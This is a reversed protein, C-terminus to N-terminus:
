LQLFHTKLSTCNKTSGTCGLPTVVSAPWSCQLHVTTKQCQQSNRFLQIWFCYLWERAIKAPYASVACYPRGASARPLPKVIYICNLIVKYPFRITEWFTPLWTLVQVGRRRSEAFFNISQIPSSGMSKSRESAATPDQLNKQIDKAKIVEKRCLPFIIQSKSRWVFSGLDPLREFSGYAKSYTWANILIYLRFTQRPGYM